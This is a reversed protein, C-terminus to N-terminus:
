MLMIWTRIDSPRVKRNLNCVYGLNMNGGKNLFCIADTLKSTQYALNFYDQSTKGVIKIRTQLNPSFEFNEMAEIDPNPRDYM